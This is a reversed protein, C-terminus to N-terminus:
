TRGSHPFAAERECSATVLMWLSTVLFSLALVWSFSAIVEPTPGFLGVILTAISIGALLILALALDTAASVLTWARVSGGAYTSSAAMILSRVVLWAVVLYTIPFIHTVPRLVLLLGAIATVSGATMCLIRSQRRQTGALLEVLGAALLLSGIVNAGPVRDALPLLAGGAALLMILIAAATILRARTRNSSADRAATVNEEM